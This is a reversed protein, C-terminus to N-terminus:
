DVLVMSFFFLNLYKISSYLRYIKSKIKFKEM